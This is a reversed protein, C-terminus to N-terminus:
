LPASSLTVQLTSTQGPALTIKDPGINGSEVCVMQLYEDNGFDALRQAKAVWPNWVVTSRSGEKAVRIRRRFAQDVIEVTAPTDVYVRDVEAAIRIADDADVKRAFQELTDLYDAGRLGTIEVATIDGVAFYTHLCAEFTLEQDPARSSISLQLVLQEGVTVTYDATFPPYGGGKPGDPLRFRLGTTGDVALTIEKLEWDQLRAFGHAPQGARPGFWPFIVPVGGRIPAGAEFRSMKSLFLLPPEAQKQFHTVHAGHLYIEAESWPTRLEVTPLEGQGDQFTVRGPIELQSEWQSATTNMPQKAAGVRGVLAVIAVM